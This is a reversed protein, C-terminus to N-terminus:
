EGPEKVYPDKRLRKWKYRADSPATVLRRTIFSEILWPVDLSKTASCSPGKFLAIWRSTSCAKSSREKAPDDPVPHYRELM